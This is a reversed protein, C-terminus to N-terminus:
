NAQEIFQLRDAYPGAAQTYAEQDGPCIILCIENIDAAAAEQLVIELAAKQTGDQDILTQLPLTRQRPDALTILAKAIKM